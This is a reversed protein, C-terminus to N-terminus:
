SLHAMLLGRGIDGLRQNANSSVEPDYEGRAIASAYADIIAQNKSLRRWVRRRCFTTATKSDEWNRSDPKTAYAWGDPEASPVAHWQTQNEHGEPYPGHRLLIDDWAMTQFSGDCTFFRHPDTPLLFGPKNSGWGRVPQWRQFEYFTEEFYAFALTKPQLVAQLTISSTMRQSSVPHFLPITFTAIEGIGKAMIDELKLTTSGMAEKQTMRDWDLVECFLGISPLHEGKGIVFQLNRFSFLAFRLNQNSGHSTQM